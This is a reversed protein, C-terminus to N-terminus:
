QTVSFSGDLSITTTEGAEVCSASSVSVSGSLGNGSGSGNFQALGTCTQTSLNFSVSGSATFSSGSVSGTATGSGNSTIIVDDNNQVEITIPASDNVSSFDVNGTYEGASIVTTDDTNDETEPETTGGSGTSSGANGGSCGSVLLFLASLLILPSAIPKTITTKM